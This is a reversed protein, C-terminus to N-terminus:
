KNTEKNNQGERLLYQLIAEAEAESIEEVVMVMDYEDILGKTVAYCGGYMGVDEGMIFVRDDRSIAERIAQGVAERYTITETVQISGDSRIDVDSHFREFRYSKASAIGALCAVLLATVAFMRVFKM